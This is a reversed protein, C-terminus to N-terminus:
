LYPKENTPKSPATDIALDSVYMSLLKLQEGSLRMSLLDPKDVMGLAKYISMTNVNWTYVQWEMRCCEQKIAITALRALLTKGIGLGRCSTEVFLDELYLIPAGFSAAYTFFYLAFGIPANNYEALLTHFYAHKGFSHKLVKEVTIGIDTEPIKEYEALKKVLSVITNADKSEAFRINM